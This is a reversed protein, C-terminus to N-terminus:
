SRHLHHQVASNGATNLWGMQAINGNPRSEYAWKMMYSPPNGGLLDQWGDNVGYYGTLVMTVGNEVTWDM